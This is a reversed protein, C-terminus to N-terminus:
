TRPLITNLFDKFAPEYIANYITEETEFWVEDSVNFHMITGDKLKFDLFHGYAYPITLHVTETVGNEVIVKTKQTVSGSICNKLHQIIESFRPDEREIIVRNSSTDPFYIEVRIADSELLLVASFYDYIPHTSETPQETQSADQTNCGPLLTFSVSAALILFTITVWKM